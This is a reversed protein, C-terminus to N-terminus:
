EGEERVSHEKILSREVLYPILFTHSSRPSRALELELNQIKNYQRQEIAASKRMLLWLVDQGMSKLTRAPRLGCRPILREGATNRAYNCPKGILIDLDELLLWPCLDKTEQSAIPFTDHNVEQKVTPYESGYITPFPDIIL